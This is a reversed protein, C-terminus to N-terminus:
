DRELPEVTEFRLWPHLRNEYISFRPEPFGPDAFAGVPITVMGPRRQIEYAITVSCTPCFHFRGWYGEDSVREFTKREGEIRVQDAPFTANLSFASGTRRQCDLCHCMSRRVPEGECTAKLKGCSCSAIRTVM